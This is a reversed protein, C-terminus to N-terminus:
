FCTEGCISGVEGVCISDWETSCCYPDSACVNNACPDCGGVLAAGTTCIPHSCGGAV